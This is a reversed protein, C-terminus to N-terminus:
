QMKYVEIDANAYVPTLHKTYELDTKFRTLIIAYDVGEKLLAEYGYISGHFFDSLNALRLKAVDRSVSPTANSEVYIRRETFVNTILPNPLHLTANTVLISDEETNQRIWEYGEAEAPTVLNSPNNTPTMTGSKATDWASQLTPVSGCVAMTICIVSLPLAVAEKICRLPKSQEEMTNPQYFALLALFPLIADTFYVQSYGVMPIFLTMGIGVAVVILFIWQLDDTKRLHRLMRCFNWFALFVLAMHIYFVFQILTGLKILPSLLKPLNQNDGYQLVSAYQATGEWSLLSSKATEQTATVTASADASTTASSKFWAGANAMFLLYIAAFLILSLIGFAVVRYWKERNQKRLLWRLCLLGEFGLLIVGVPAKTGLCIGFFVLYVACGRVFPIERRHLECLLILCFALLGLAYDFGFPALVTHSAYFVSTKEYMGMSFVLLLIGLLIKWRQKVFRSLLCYFGSCILMSSQLYSYVLGLKPISVGITKEMTALQIGSFYHYKIIYGAGRMSEPPFSRSLSIGNGLWYLTDHYYTHNFGNNPLHNPLGFFIFYILFVVTWILLFLWADTSMPTNLFEKTATRNRLRLMGFVTGWAALLYQLIPIAVMWHDTLWSLPILVIYTLIGLCYGIAYSFALTSIAGKRPIRLLSLVAYGPLLMCFIQYFLLKLWVWLSLQNWLTAAALFIALLGAFLLSFGHQRYLRRIM